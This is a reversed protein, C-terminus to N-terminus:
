APRGVPRCADDQCRAAHEGYTQQANRLRAQFETRAQEVNDNRPLPAFSDFLVAPQPRVFKAGHFHGPIRVIVVYGSEAGAGEPRHRRESGPQVLLVPM